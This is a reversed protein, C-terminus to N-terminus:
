ISNKKNIASIRVITFLSVSSSFYSSKINRRTSAASGSERQHSVLPTGSGVLVKNRQSGTAGATGAEETLSGTASRREAVVVLYRMQVQVFHVFPKPEFPENM